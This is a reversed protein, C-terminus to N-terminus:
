IDTSYTVTASVDNPPDVRHPRVRVRLSTNFRVGSYILYYPRGDGQRLLAIDNRPIVVPTQGDVTIEVDLASYNTATPFYRLLGAIQWLFGAGTHNLVTNWSTDTVSASFSAIQPQTAPIGVQGELETVRNTLATILAGFGDNEIASIRNALATRAQAALTDEAELADIDTEAADVRAGVATISASLAPDGLSISADVTVTVEAAAPQIDLSGAIVLRTGAITSALVDGADTWYAYLEEAGNGVQGLLGLETVDFAETPQFEGKVAIRGSVMTSGGLAVVMKQTRLATRGDDAEGGPGQGSGIAMKTLRIANTGHNTGDALAARGADTIRLEFAM